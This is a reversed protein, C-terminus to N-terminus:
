EFVLGSMRSRMERSVDRLDQENSLVRPTIMVLLETRNTTNGTAGFLNGMVPIDHLIPLGSRTRSTNDRILGGLVVTEGSRIAVRSNINRELFSRQGTASDQQGVDTVSQKIEMNVMGGANVSPTVSLMVGTDKYQISSTITGGDTVTQASRIPQQNGVQITATHNDLVLVSPTSIVNVLSKEALANIVARIAGAPNTVTFSFGPVRPGIPDDSLNLLANGRWGSGLSEQLFWELGYRLEDNLSVEIISAEILVQSPAIDLKKLAAEIKRFERRNAYILLANSQEDAVIRVNQALDYNTSTPGTSAPLATQASASSSGTTSGSSIPNSSPPTAGSSIRSATLNPAVGADTMEASGPSPSFLKSMLSALYGASGNQVPYVFLQQEFLHDPPQDLREMWVKVQELYHSRPTVVLLSNLREVPIVRVLSSINGDGLVEEGMLAQLMTFAEQVPAYQLPFVGVSMGKLLDIDFTSIIELWGDLQQRTGALILLNRRPDVRVFASDSAVPGLIDAMEQAGIFRLPIVVNSYGANRENASAIGPMLSSMSAGAGVFYRGNNDRIMVAGNAQLLSELTSLLQDQPIPSRTRITINGSLPHEIVYDLKLIEGLIIHVVQTIPAEEFSLSVDEGFFRVPESSSPARVVQDNGKYLQPLTPTISESEKDSSTSYRGEQSPSMLVPETMLVPVPDSVPKLTPSQCASLFFSGLIPVWISTNRAM